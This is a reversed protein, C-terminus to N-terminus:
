FHKLTEEIVESITRDKDAKVLALLIRKSILASNEDLSMGQLYWELNNRVNKFDENTIGETTEGKTGEVDEPSAGIKQKDRENM